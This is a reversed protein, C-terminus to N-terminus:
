DVDLRKGPAVYIPVGSAHSLVAQLSLLQKNNTAADLADDLRAVDNENRRSHGADNAVRCANRIQVNM